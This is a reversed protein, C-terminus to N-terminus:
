AWRFVLWWGAFLLVGLGALFPAVGLWPYRERRLLAILGLGFAMVAIVLTCIVAEGLGPLWSGQDREVQTAVRVIWLTILYAVFPGAWSAIGFIPKRRARPKPPPTKEMADASLAVAEGGQGAFAFGCPCLPADADIVSSCQPCRKM